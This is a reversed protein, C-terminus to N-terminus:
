RRPPRGGRRGRELKEILIGRDYDPLARLRRELKRMRQRRETSMENWRRVNEHLREREEGTREHLMEYRKRLARQEAKPLKQISRLKEILERRQRPPLALAEDRIRERRRRLEGRRATRDSRIERREDASWEGGSRRKAEQRRQVQEQDQQVPPEAGVPVPSLAVLLAITILVFRLM